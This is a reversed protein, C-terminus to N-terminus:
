LIAKRLFKVFNVLLCRHQFRNKLSNEPRRGPVKNLDLSWCLHKRTFRTFNKILAKEIFCRLGMGFNWSGVSGMGFNRGMGGVGNKQGM